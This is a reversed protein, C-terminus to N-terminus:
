FAYRLALTARNDHFYRSNTPGAFSKESYQDYNWYTNFYWNKVMEVSLSALPQHYTYALPGLPQLANFAPISGDVKTVGYGLNATVRKVPQVRVLFSANHTKDEFMSYLYLPYNNASSDFTPCAPSATTGQTGAPLPSVTSSYCIFADQQFDSYNYAVDFGWRVTPNVSASFGFNRNHGRYNIQTYGNRNELVNITGSITAWPKPTYTTRFRYHQQNLPSVRTIFGANSDDIGTGGNSTLEFEANARLQNTPRFWFGLLGTHEVLDWSDVEGADFHFHRIARTGYRYGLRAGVKRNFNYAFQATNSKTDLALKRDYLEAGTTATCQGPATGLIVAGTTPDICDTFNYTAPSKVNILLATDASDWMGVVRNNWFRFTDSFSLKDTIHITLGLDTSVNITENHVPGSFTYAKERTRTVLGSFAENFPTKLDTSAYSIRGSLEVKKHPRSQFALQSVPTTSRVRMFRSYSFYGNCNTTRAYGTSLICAASAAPTIGFEASTAGGVLTPNAFPASIFSGLTANTDNKGYQLFQDFSINTHPIVKLDFGFRFTQYTTNWPQNLLPDVGEHYTSLTPGNARNRDYGLRVSFRSQPLLTLDLSAMRRRVEYTHPSFNVPGPFTDNLPNALLDYNFFNHDRRFSGSFNYWKNKSVRFRAANNPDGGWGFSTVYLDDFLVGANDLSRMSLTQELLRPGQHLNIFTNFMATNDGGTSPPTTIDTFRYGLEISQHINYGGHDIGDAPASQAGAALPFVLLMVVFVGPLLSSKTRMHREAPEPALRGDLPRKRTTSAELKKM